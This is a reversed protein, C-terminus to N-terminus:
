FISITNGLLLPIDLFSEFNYTKYKCNNCIFTTIFIGNFIDTIISDETSKCWLIYNNIM